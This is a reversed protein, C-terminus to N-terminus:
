DDTKKFFPLSVSSRYLLISIGIICILCYLVVDIGVGNVSYQPTQVLSALAYLAGFLASGVAFLFGTRASQQKGKYWSYTRYKYEVWSLYWSLLILALGLILSAPIASNFFWSLERSFGDGHFFNGLEILAIGAVTSRSWFDLLEFEDWKRRQAWVYMYGASAILGPLLLFGAHAFVDLWSLVSWGFDSVHAAIYAARSALLGVFLSLLYGDFLEIEDYHEETGKRWFLFVSAFLGVLLLVSRTYVTFSGVQFLVPFM